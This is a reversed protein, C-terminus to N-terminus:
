KKWRIVVTEEPTITLNKKDLAAQKDAFLITPRLPQPTHLGVTVTTDSKNIVVSIYENGNSLTKMMLNSCFTDFRFNNDRVTAPLMKSLWASLPAYDGSIRAGLSVPSPIWVVTGKGLHNRSAIPIGEYSSLAEAKDLGLTGRWLSTPLPLGNMDLTYERDILQYELPYAGMLRQMDFSGLMRCHADQDYFGTLGDCILTGGRVVFQELAAVAEDSLAIQHSLVIVQGTYDNRSFDYERFEKLNVQYGAQTFTEFCGLASSMVGGIARGDNIGTRGRSLMTEVWMAERVYLINIGSETVRATSFLAPEANLVRAVKRAAIGRGSLSDRFNLLAWEGAEAGSARANLSWFIIGKSGSALITWLWQTTEEVTPCIPNTGASYTNNGGQLETMIWPLPGAGSRIMESTASMAINYKQRPFLSFHWSPHASGGLTSLFNRWAPFDFHQANSFIGAPNVHIEHETDYKRVEEALWSLYWTQHEILFKDRGFDSIPYGEANYEPQPHAANWERQRQKTVGSALAQRSTAAPENLIVWSCMSKYQSFHSVVERIYEAVEQQHHQSEPFKFGGVDTFPTDPFLTAYIAVGHKDAARFAKDFLSFDWKGNEGKMYRGFMRIRCLPMGNEKLTRFWGDIQQDTQGPEIIVQGGILPLADHTTQAPAVSILCLTCLITILIKTRM